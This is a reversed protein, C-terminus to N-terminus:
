GHIDFRLRFWQANAETAFWFGHNDQEWQDGFMTYCWTRREDIMDHYISPNFVMSTTIRPMPVRHYFGIDDM